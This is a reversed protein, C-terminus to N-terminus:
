AVSRELELFYQYAIELELNDMDILQVYSPKKACIDALLKSIEAEFYGRNDLINENNDIIEFLHAQIESLLDYIGLDDLGSSKQKLRKHLRAYKADNRYKAVLLNNQDNLGKARILIHELQKVNTELDISIGEQIKKNTLIKIFEDYLTVYEPDKEDFNRSLTERVLRTMERVKNGIELEEEGTKSFSFVINELASNLLAKTEDSVNIRENFLILDLRNRAELLLKHLKKFDMDIAQDDHGYAKILNGLDQAKTLSVVIERISKKDTIKSIQTSFNEANTLDFSFLKNRIEHISAEIEKPGLFINSYNGYDEGLEDQLEKFYAANTRDFEASIDAFDVIYGYKFNNYPRNVRTLTQLLNHERIVRALYLKKLRPVNFGTILMNYVILIDIKGAKFDETLNERDEKDGEDFLILGASMGKLKWNSDFCSKLARAQESSDCVIMGGITQDGHIDRSKNLDEVIYDIMPSVFSKHSLVLSKALTGKEVEVSLKELTENIQASYSAEIEERILRLTYGDRISDNYFYKHIYEGFIKKTAFEGILPTGTLCIHIGNRDASKLNAFFSGSERYSRHAEDIFFVRQIDLSYDGRFLDSADNSFKQINIVTIELKGTTTTIAENKTFDRIFESKSNITNVKLGRQIFESKAQKLLDLRDVVFYFKGIINKTQLYDYIIRTNFYALATKGSGQTHWFIGDKENKALRELLKYTGFIQPYRMIHKELGKYGEVYAIGYKLIFQLREPTFMSTLIRNTPTDVEMNSKFESTHKISILNTTRLILDEDGNRIFRPSKSDYIQERFFNFSAEKYSTTSYFAGQLLNNENLEYEMNNSFVMFQTLNIFKKFNHNSFRANIRNREALIGEPNNPKKVEIFALPLGNVLITIDPRFSELGNECDYETVVNLQNNEFNDFDILKIGSQNVLHGYFVKGLDENALSNIVQKKHIEIEDRSYNTNLRRLANEFIDEAINTVPDKKFTGLPLFEYGLKSLHILAPIKVRSDENFIM